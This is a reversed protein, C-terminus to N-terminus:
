EFTIYKLVAWFIVVYKPYKQIFIQQRSSEFIAWDPWVSHKMCWQYMLLSIDNPRGLCFALICFNTPKLDFDLKAWFSLIRFFGIPLSLLADLFTIVINEPYWAWHSWFFTVLHRYFNGLFPTMLYNFIKVCKCFNDLFTASKPLNITSLPKSFNVLTLYIAWDPWM